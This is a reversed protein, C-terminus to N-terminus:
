FAVFTTQASITHGKSITAIATVFIPQGSVTTYTINIQAIGYASTKVPGYTSVAGGPYVVKFLVSVGAAPTNSVGINHTVRAYLTQQAGGTPLENATWAGIEYVPLTPTPTGNTYNPPVGIVVGNAGPTDTAINSSGPVNVNTRINAPLRHAANGIATLAFGGILLALALMAVMGM